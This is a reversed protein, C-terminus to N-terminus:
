VYLVKWLNLNRFDIKKYELPKKQNLIFDFM